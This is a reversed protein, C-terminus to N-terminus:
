KTLIGEVAIGAGLVLLVTGWNFLKFVQLLLLSTLILSFLIGQRFSHQVHSISERKSKWKRVYYGAITFIGLFSLFVSIFFISLGFVSEEYPDVLVVVAALSALSLVTAIITTLFIKKLSSM